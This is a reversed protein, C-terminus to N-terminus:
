KKRRNDFFIDDGDSPADKTSNTKNDFYPDKLKKSSARAARSAKSSEGRSKAESSAVEGSSVARAARSAKSREGRSKAESSATEASSSARAAASDEDRSTSEPTNEDRPFTSEPTNEDRPFTTDWDPSNTSSVSERRLLIYSVTYSIIVVTAPYMTVFGLLEDRPYYSGILFKFLVWFSQFTLLWVLITSVFPIMLLIFLIPFGWFTRLAPIWIDLYIGLAYYTIDPLLILYLFSGIYFPITLIGPVFNLITKFINM